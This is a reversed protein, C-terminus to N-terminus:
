LKDLFNDLAPIGPKLGKRKRIAEVLVGSKSTADFPDTAIQEWHDFVCQPFARGSTMSRLHQTFGFSEAVPLYAKVIVLPTGQVPEEGIVIGRRQTLTQYIGGMADDPTQIECLFIPEQFRPEATLQAAYYVRRATPIIQGGGRHIADAHLAVDMINFRIGRMNEETMVAEKTAWQFAAEMSDKIENLYQVAKTQDVLLNPGSTEPGFCWIKKADNVDWGYNDALKRYRGKPDEKASVTESDIANTLDDGLPEAVMYIRNHKNPSKSLCVQSSKNSVTEKYTVVPDSKKIECKAYENVLDNLCIEVHLEGCGAIIHEGSEETYCLVLPDSKSLKKLGEVLKPLDSANKPEVAVRVVPSVSYKMVRINHADEHDSLTGQKMLYQDVGVLGVTNGCPVDPVAEVKGGMMLVTRQISKVHLDNKSGPTYNPGMIRVKQGTSVIGSFVRGFAYFRGKDNTPVMKSIFVMLPGKQDCNKIAQGCPDDIPGEYLYAARYKQATVPSPLKLVIMELLADAANIWKQFVVKFLAKGQLETEDHKLNIELTTLMKMVAEKNGDMINRCLRVVPEM